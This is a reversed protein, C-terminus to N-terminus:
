QTLDKISDVARMEWEIKKMSGENEEPSSVCDFSTDIVIKDYSRISYYALAYFVYKQSFFISKEFNQRLFFLFWVWAVSFKKFRKGKISKLFRYFKFDIPSHRTALNRGITFSSFDFIEDFDVLSWNIEFVRGKCVQKNSSM